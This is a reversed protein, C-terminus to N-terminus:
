GIIIDSYEDPIDYKRRGTASDRGREEYQDGDRGETEWRRLINQIYRLNRKNRSVAIEVADHIWEPPYTKEMDRLQDAILPTLVGINQEYLLFINPRKVRLRAEEPIASKLDAIRGQRVQALAQRGKVTNMFYWDEVAEPATSDEEKADTVIELRLLTNRALCRELADNLVIHPPRLDGDLALGALLTEDNRLDDGRLFRLEGSQENLLWFCHLTLKLEALEDIQPLLETFFMDPIIVPRMKTDPFGIFTSQM